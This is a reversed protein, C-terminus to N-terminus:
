FLSQEVFIKLPKMKRETIKADPRIEGFLSTAKPNHHEFNAKAIQPRFNAYEYHYLYSPFSLLKRFWSLFKEVAEPTDPMHSLYNQLFFIKEDPYLIDFDRIREAFSLSDGVFFNSQFGWYEIPLIEECLNYTCYLSWESEVDYTNVFIKGRFNKDRLALLTGYLEPCPGCAFFHLEPENFMPVVFNEVVYRAPEIYYPYYAIMYAKRIEYDNYDTDCFPKAYSERLKKVDNRFRESAEANRYLETDEVGYTERFIRKVLGSIPVNDKVIM